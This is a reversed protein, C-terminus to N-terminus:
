RGESGRVWAFKINMVTPRDDTGNNFLSIKIFNCRTINMRRRFTMPANTDNNLNDLNIETNRDSKIKVSDINCMDKVTMYMRSVTKTYQPLDFDMYNSEWVAEIPNGSDTYCNEDFVYIKNGKYFAIEDIMLLRDANISDYFYWVDLKYNYIWVDGGYYLWIEGDSRHNFTLANRIFEPTMGKYLKDSVFKANREDFLKTISWSYLGDRTISILNNEVSKVNDYGINGISSSIMTLSYKYLTNIYPEETVIEPHRIAWVDGETFIMLDDFQRIVSTVANKEEGIKLLNPEIIYVNDTYDFKETYYINNKLNGGYLFLRPMSYEGFIAHYRNSFIDNRRSQIATSTFTIDWTGIGPLTSSKYKMVAYPSTQNITITFDTTYDVGNYMIKEVKSVPLTHNFTVSSMTSPNYISRYKNTILNQMEYSAYSTGMVNMGSYRIPIYAEVPAFSTGNYAYFDYGDLVYLKSYAYFINVFGSSQVSINGIVTKTNTAINYKILQTGACVYLAESDNKFKGYWAGRITNGFETLLRTGDRKKLKFDPTIRFNKMNTSEGTVPSFLNIGKFNDISLTNPNKNKYQVRTFDAM